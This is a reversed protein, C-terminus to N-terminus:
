SLLWSYLEEMRRAISSWAFNEEARKRAAKGLQERLGADHALRLVYMVAQEVNNQEFLFGITEDFYDQVGDTNSIVVPLGCAMGELLANSATIATLPLFLLDAKRYQALLQDDNIGSLYITNESEAYQSQNVKDGVIVFQIEGRTLKNIEAIVSRHTAFDRYNSGVTLCCLRDHGAKSSNGPSFYETDVGHPVVAIREQPLITEFFARQNNNLLVAADLSRLHSFQKKRQFFYIAPQHYTAVVRHRRTVYRVFRGGIRFSHEGYLYHVITQPLRLLHVLLSLETELSEHSYWMPHILSTYKQLQRLIKPLLIHGEFPVSKVHQILQKYGSHGGHHEFSREVFLINM